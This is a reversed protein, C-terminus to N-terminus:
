TVLETRVLSPASSLPYADVYFTDGAECAARFPATMEAIFRELSEMRTADDSDDKLELVASQYLEMSEDTEQWLWKNLLALTKLEDRCRAPTINIEIQYNVYTM